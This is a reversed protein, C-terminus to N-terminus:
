LIKVSGGFSVCTPQALKAAEEDGKSFDDRQSSLLTEMKASEKLCLDQYQEKTYFFALKGHGQFGRAPDSMTVYYGDLGRFAGQLVKDAHRKCSALLKGCICSGLYVLSSIEPPRGYATPDWDSATDKDGGLKADLNSNNRDTESEEADDSADEALITEDFDEELDV